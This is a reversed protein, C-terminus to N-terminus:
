VRLRAMANPHHAEITYEGVLMAKESDGTKALGPIYGFRRFPVVKVRERPVLLLETAPMARSHFVEASGFPGTYTRIVRKYVERENTDQVKTDNLDSINRFFTRGAVIAWTESTSAGQQFAQEWINGIYRHPNTEFSNAAVASNITTIFSRLGQMTRTQASTGLSNTSNLIGRVVEKELSHLADIPTKAVADMFRNDGYVAQELQSGSASLDITFYGVTNSRRVGLRQTNAGSHDRGELAAYGRVYLQGGPDLSGVAGGGYARNAAVTNPGLISAVQMVEPAASENELLTGVTLALGLGNVGITTITNLSNVAVSATVYNPLMFDEVFEHQIGRATIGSEGLFDLFPTEKPMLRALIDSVDDQALNATILDYTTQPM